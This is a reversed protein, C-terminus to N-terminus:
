DRKGGLRGALGDDGGGGAGDGGADGDAEIDVQTWGEPRIEADRPGGARRDEVARGQELQADVVRAVEEAQLVVRARDHRVQLREWGRDDDQRVPTTAGPVCGRVTWGAGGTDAM